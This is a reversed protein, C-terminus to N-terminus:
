IISKIFDSGKLFSWQLHLCPFFPLNTQTLGLDLLTPRTPFKWFLLKGVCILIFNKALLWAKLTFSGVFKM